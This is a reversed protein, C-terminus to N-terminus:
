STCHSYGPLKHSMYEFDIVMVKPVDYVFAMKTQMLQKEYLVLQTSIPEKTLESECEGISSVRTM